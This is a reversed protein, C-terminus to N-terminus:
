IKFHVTEGCFAIKWLMKLWRKWEHNLWANWPAEVMEVAAVAMVKWRRKWGGGIVVGGAANARNEVPTPSTFGAAYIQFLIM